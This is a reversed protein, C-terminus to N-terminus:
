ELIDGLIPHWWKGGDQLQYNGEFTAQLVPLIRKLRNAPLSSRMRYHATRKHLKEIIAKSVQPKGSLYALLAESDHYKKEIKVLKQVRTRTLRDWITVFKGKGNLGVQQAAHERYQILTDNLFGIRNEMSLWLSIWGDHILEEILQPVPFIEPIIKSRIALTAGTVVYGRLLIDFAGGNKWSHQWEEVFQIQEFSTVGTPIGLQNIMTANSFVADQQPNELFYNWQKDVKNPEWLDDQDCLFIIEGTCAKICNEFNKSSGINEVNQHILVTFPAKQQFDTLLQITSDTSKDDFVLLEDIMKSQHLISQLQKELFKEGNYTCLAVSIIPNL